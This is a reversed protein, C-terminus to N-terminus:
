PKGYYQSNRGTCEQWHEAADEGDKNKATEGLGYSNLIQSMVSSYPNGIRSTTKTIESASESAVVLAPGIKTTWFEWNRKVSRWAEAGEKLIKDKGRDRYEGGQFFGRNGV